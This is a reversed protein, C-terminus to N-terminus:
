RFGHRIFIERASQSQLYDFFLQANMGANKMLVMRQDLPKYLDSSILQHRVKEKVGPAQLLSYAIIGGETSGGAAFQAAQSVNEGLVLHPKLREWLGAARLAEEAAKGYPAHEPNAIAFRNIKAESLGVLKEDLKLSSDKPTIIVLRGIAYSIGEDRTLGKKALRKIYSSDASLFIEFPAGQEIQRAFNGSSGFSL